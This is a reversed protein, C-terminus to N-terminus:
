REVLSEEQQLAKRSKLREKVVEYVDLALGDRHHDLM